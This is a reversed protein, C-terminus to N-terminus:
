LFRKLDITATKGVHALHDTLWDEAAKRGRERLDSLFAWDTNSKSDAGLDALRDDASVAHLRMARYRGRASEKLLGEELLRRVFAVARLEATITANFTIENLRDVIEGATEPVHDRVFPNLTVLLVDDPTGEYFLPWLAPNARYGGDWYAEGDIEVAKFLTPLCASAMLHKATLETERFVKGQGTRVNTAAIYLQVPSRERVAKFNVATELVDHLPNLDFPNFQSPSFSSMWSEAWRWAPTGRMWQPSFAATWISTDGFVSRRGADSVGRWFLELTTKAGARGGTALGSALCVANMAGASSGTVAAIQVSEEDLLREILGWEFAGHSGGGQLALTLPKAAM